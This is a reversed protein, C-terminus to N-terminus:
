PMRVQRTTLASCSTRSPRSSSPRRWTTPSRSSASCSCTFALKSSARTVWVTPRRVLQLKLPMCALMSRAPARAQALSFPLESYMGAARERYMVSREFSAVPRCACPADAGATGPGGSAQWAMIHLLERVPHDQLQHHRPLAHLPVARRPHRGRGTHQEQNPAVPM